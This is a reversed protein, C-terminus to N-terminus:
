DVFFLTGELRPYNRERCRTILANIVDLTTLGLVIIPHNLFHARDDFFVLQRVFLQYFGIFKFKLSATGLARGTVACRIHYRDLNHSLRTM